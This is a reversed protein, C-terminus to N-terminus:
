FIFKPAEKANILAPLDTEFLTRQDFSEPTVRVFRRVEMAPSQGLIALLRGGVRLSDRFDPLLPLSGTVIIADYPAHRDWGRAADGLELTVNAIGKAALKAAAQLHFEPIIEVSYVHRSLSALLATLYGSGTGVELVTDQPNLNLEQILRAELKPAMMVQGHGLPIEMDVFALNRYQPPVFDERPVRKILELVRTDLVEWTRIQQEIMTARVREFNMESM